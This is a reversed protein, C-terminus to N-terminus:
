TPRYESYQPLADEIAYWPAKSTVFIHAGERVGPDDEFSGAPIVAMQSVPNARPVASGCDRCFAQTFREAEPM